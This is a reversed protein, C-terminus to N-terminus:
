FEAISYELTETNLIAVTRRNTLYGCVEGPNLILTKGIQRVDVKHTHGYLVVDYKGTLAMAEAIVKTQETDGFGHMLFFRKGSVELQHVERKLTAGAKSALEKLTVVDGDNNGLVIVIRGPYELIKMLAFPSIVDGLHIIAEVGGKRFVELAKAIANLYDHSDSMVGIIM